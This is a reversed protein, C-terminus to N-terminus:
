KKIREFIGSLVRNIFITRQKIGIKEGGLWWIVFNFQHLDRQLVREIMRDTDIGYMM